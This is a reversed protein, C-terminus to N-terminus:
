IATRQLFENLANAAAIIPWTSIAVIIAFLFAELAFERIAETAFYKHTVARFSGLSRSRRDPTPKILTEELTILNMGSCEIFPSSRQTLNRIPL